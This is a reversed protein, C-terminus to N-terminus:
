HPTLLMLATGLAMAGNWFSAYLQHLDSPEALPAPRARLGPMIRTLSLLAHGLLYLALAATVAQATASLHVAHGPMISQPAAAQPGALIEQASGSGSHAPWAMWTMAAMGVTSPMRGVLAAVCSEHRRVASSLPYWLAAAAFLAPEAPHSLLVGRNWPMVAMASAMVAHLLHDGRGRWGGGHSRTGQRVEYVAIAAFLAALMVHVVDCANM